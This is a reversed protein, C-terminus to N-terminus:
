ILLIQILSFGEQLDHFAVLVAALSVRLIQM